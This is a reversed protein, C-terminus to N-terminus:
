SATNERLSKSAKELNRRCEPFVDAISLEALRECLLPTSRASPRPKVNRPAAFTLGANERGEDTAPIRALDCGAIWLVHMLEVAAKAFARRKARPEDQAYCQTLLSLMLGYVANGYDLKRAAIPETIWVRKAEDVPRRMVPDCASPLAPEFDPNLSSLHEWESAISQFYAFHCDENCTTSGEGQAVITDLAKLADEIGAVSIIGDMDMTEPGIQNCLDAPLFSADGHRDAFAILTDRIEAYFEGITEYDPTSPTLSGPTRTRPPAKKRFTTGDGVPVDDPRELFIFHQLTDKTFPTLRIVFEAPHYGPPVPLNPRDFHPPGGIAVLLNNVLLLHGMEERAVTMIKERWESVASSETPSLSENVSKLSFAAYLYSCLLNHEIEAAETLLHVLYERSSSTTTSVRSDDM